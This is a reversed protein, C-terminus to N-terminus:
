FYNHDTEATPPALVVSLTLNNNLLTCVKEFFNYFWSGESQALQPPVESPWMGFKLDSLGDAATRWAASTEAEGTSSASFELDDSQSLILIRNTLGYRRIGFGDWVDFDSWFQRSKILLGIIIKEDGFNLVLFKEYFNGCLLM